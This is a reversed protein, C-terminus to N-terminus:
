NNKLSSVISYLLPIQRANPGTQVKLTKELDARAVPTKPQGSELTLVQSTETLGNWELYERILENIIFNAQPPESPKTGEEGAEETAGEKLVQLVEKRTRGEIQDLFGKDRLASTVAKYVDKVSSQEEEEAM